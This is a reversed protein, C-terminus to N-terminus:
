GSRARGDTDAPDHPDRRSSAAETGSPSPDPSPPDDPEPDVPPEETPERVTPQLDVPTETPEPEEETETATTTETPTPDGPRRERGIEVVVTPDDGLTTGAPPDQNVVVGYDGPFDVPVEVITATIGLEALLTTVDPSRLGVLGPMVPRQGLGDSVSLVVTSGLEARTGAGPVQEVVTGAPRYDPVPQAIATFGVDALLAEAADFQRGVVGPVPATPLPPPAPFDVVPLGMTDVARRMFDAWIITPLCGGTVDGGCRADRMPTQVDHGVWVAASLQPIYGVFWADNNDDTTGTKGAAPRGIRGNRSATGAEIPGRLMSTVRKAIGPEIAQECDGGGTSLVRGHRDTVSAVAYPECRVGDNALTGFAAAMDLPFVEQSGLVTSCIDERLVSSRIGMRAAVDLLPAPGVVDVLHAFYVNSSRATAAPMDMVGGGGDSYNGPTWGPALPVCQATPVYPSPTDITYGPSFGEELAAVAMFPKFSSGPQRGFTSGLGPVAPNVETQGPGKGFSRPGFGVALLEGTRPDVVPLAAQPGDPDTLVQRIADDAIVQLGPDLTTRIELGGRLILGGRINRDEGLAPDDLLLQRVYSVFFPDRTEPLPTIQLAMPEAQWRAAEVPTLFGAAAMQRLVIDRRQRAAEPHDIPDNASPARILGALLAAQAPDLDGVGRGFYFEAATGVGYVGNGFYAENLYAELIEDKSMRQELQIAYVAERLKRDLTQEAVTEGDELLVLNKILQQTITSAGSTIEGAQANGVAARAVARWDVGEHDRFDADETAIVADQVGRPIDALPTIIRNETAHLVALTSGDRALIVSREAPEITVPPLPPFDFLGDDVTGIATSAVSVAPAVSAAFLLGAGGIVVAILGLRLVFRGWVSPDLLPAAVPVRPRSRM